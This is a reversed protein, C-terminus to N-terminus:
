NVHANMDLRDTLLVGLDVIEAVREIVEDGVHYSRDILDYRKKFTILHCKSLNLNM